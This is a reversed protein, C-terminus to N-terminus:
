PAHSCAVSDVVDPKTTRPEFVAHRVGWDDAPGGSVSGATDMSAKEYTLMRRALKRGLVQQSNAILQM